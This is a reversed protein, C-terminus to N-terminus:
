DNEIRYHCEVIDNAISDFIVDFIYKAENVTFEIVIKFINEQINLVSIVTRETISSDPKIGAENLLYEHWYTNDTFERKIKKETTVDFFDSLAKCTDKISNFQVYESKEDLEHKFSDAFDNDETILIGIRRNQTCYNYITEAIISDKFGADSHEKGNIKGSFFPKTGSLAKNILSEILNEAQGYKVIKCKNRPDEIFESFLCDVFASYEIDEYQIQYTFDILSGFAKQYEDVTSNLQKKLQSYFHKMHYKCEMIVISPICIEIQGSLQFKEIFDVLRYYEVPVEIKSLYVTKGKQCPFFIQLINTDLFISVKRESTQM